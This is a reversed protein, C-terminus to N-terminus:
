GDMEFLAMAKAMVMALTRTSRGGVSKYAKEENAGGALRGPAVRGLRWSSRLTERESHFGALSVAPCLGLLSEVGTDARSEVGLMVADLVARIRWWCCVESDGKEEPLVAEEGGVLAAVLEADHRTRLHDRRRLQRDEDAWFVGCGWAALTDAAGGLVSNESWRIM